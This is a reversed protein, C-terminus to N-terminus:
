YALEVWHPVTEEQSDENLDLHLVRLKELVMDAQVRGHKGGHHYHVSGKFSYALGLYLNAKLVSNGQDHQRKM